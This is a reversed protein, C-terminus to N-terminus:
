PRPLSPLGLYQLRVQVGRGWRRYGLPVRVAIDDADKTKVIEVDPIGLHLSVGVFEVLVIPRV